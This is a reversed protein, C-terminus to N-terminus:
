FHRKVIDSSESLVFYFECFDCINCNWNIARQPMMRSKENFLEISIDIIDTYFM